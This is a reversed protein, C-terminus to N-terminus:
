KILIMKKIQETNNVSVKYFYIGSAVQKDDSDTGNWITSHGGIEM